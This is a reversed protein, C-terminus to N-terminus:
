DDLFREWLWTDGCLGARLFRHLDVVIGAMLLPNWRLFIRTRSFDLFILRGDPDGILINRHPDDTTVGADHIKAMLAGNKDRPSPFMPAPARDNGAHRRCVGRLTSRRM